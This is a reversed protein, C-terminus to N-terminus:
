MEGSSFSEHESIKGNGKMEGQSIFLSLFFFFISSYLFYPPLRPTVSVWTPSGLEGSYLYLGMAESGEKVVQLMMQSSVHKSQGLEAASGVM